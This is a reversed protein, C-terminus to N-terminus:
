NAEQAGVGAKGDVQFFVNRDLFASPRSRCLWVYRMLTDLRDVQDLVGVEDNGQKQNIQDRLVGFHHNTTPTLLPDPVDQDEPTRPLSTGFTMTSTSSLDRVMPEGDNTKNYM